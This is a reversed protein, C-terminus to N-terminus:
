ISHKAYWRIVGLGLSFRWCEICCYGQSGESKSDSGGRGERLGMHCPLSLSYGPIFTAQRGQSGESDSGSGSGQSDEQGEPLPVSDDTAAGGTHGSMYDVDQAHLCLPRQSAQLYNLVSVSVSVSAFLKSTAM